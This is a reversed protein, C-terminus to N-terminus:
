CEYRAQSRYSWFDSVIRKCREYGIESDHFVLTLVHDEFIDWTEYGSCVLAFSETYFKELMYLASTDETM